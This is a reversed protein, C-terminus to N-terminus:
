RRRDLRVFAMRGEGFIQSRRLLGGNEDWEVVPNELGIKLATANTVTAVVFHESYFNGMHGSRPPTFSVGLAADPPRSPAALWLLLMFAFLIALALWAIRKLNSSRRQEEM